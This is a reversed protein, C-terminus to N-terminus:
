TNIDLQERHRLQSQRTYSSSIMAPQVDSSELRFELQGKQRDVKTGRSLASIQSRPGMLLHPGVDGGVGVKGERGRKAWDELSDLGGKRRGM